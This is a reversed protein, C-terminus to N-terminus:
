VVEGALDLRTRQVSTSIEGQATRLGRVLKTHELKRVNAGHSFATAAAPDWPLSTLVPVGLVKTIETETYRRGPGIVLLRLHAQAGSATFRERLTTAWSRAGALSPLDSRCVLLACDAGGLLAEPSGALGLRGVDVIVDQGGGELGKFAALLADWLGTLAAAQGHGRTGPLLQVSTGPLPVTLTPLLTRLTGSQQAIALDILEDGPASQGQLYGAQISSGGTPDAEVAVVPRPWSVAMGVATTTVGPSGSASCLAIVAM